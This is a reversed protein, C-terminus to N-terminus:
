MEIYPVSPHRGREPQDDLYYHLMLTLDFFTLKRWGVAKRVTGLPLDTSVSSKIALALL